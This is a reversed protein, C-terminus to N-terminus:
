RAIRSSKSSHNGRWDWLEVHVDIYEVDPTIEVQGDRDHAVVSCRGDELLLNTLAYRFKRDPNGIDSNPWFGVSQNTANGFDILRITSSEMGNNTLDAFADTFKCRDVKALVRGDQDKITFAVSAAELNINSKQDRDFATVVVDFAGDRIETVRKAQADLLYIEEAVPATRDIYQRFSDIPDILLQNEADVLNVHTHRGGVVGADALEGLVQGREVSFETGDRPLSPDPQVHLVQVVVHTDPDWISVVTSYDGNPYSQDGWWDTIHATGSVPSHVVASQNENERIVDLGTHEYVYSGLRIPTGPRAIVARSDSLPWALAPRGAVSVDVNRAWYAAIRMYGGTDLQRARVEGNPLDAKGGVAATSVWLGPEVEFMGDDIDVSSIDDGGACATLLLSGLLAHPLRM